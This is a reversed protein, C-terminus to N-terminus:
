APLDIEVPNKLTGGREIVFVTAKTGHLALLRGGRKLIWLCPSPHLQRPAEERSFDSLLLGAKAGSIAVKGDLLVANNWDDKDRDEWRNDMRSFFTEAQRIKKLPDRSYLSILTGWGDMRSYKEFLM